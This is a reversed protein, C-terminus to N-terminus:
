MFPQNKHYLQYTFIGYMSVNAGFRLFFVSWIFAFCDAVLMM